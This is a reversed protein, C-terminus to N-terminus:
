IVGESVVTRVEPPRVPYGREYLYKKALFVSNETHQFINAAAVAAPKARDMAESLHEWAGVGGLAIVPINVARVVADVLDLDYGDARGDRDISNLLIEGAGRNEVERAWDTPARGTPAKGYDSCIEWSDGSRRADMSVVVCQSGFTEAAETIIGPEALARTNIAIKDAGLALRVRMDELTRIWGGVSMPMFCKKGVERLVDGYSEKFQYNLDSRKAAAVARTDTRRTIDLYVLEDSFWNTLRWVIASPNGLIQHRRFGKSQVVHGNKVLVVPILRTKQM